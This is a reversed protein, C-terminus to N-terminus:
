IKRIFFESIKWTEASFMSQQHENSDGQCPPELSYGCDINQASSLFIIYIGTFELKVIYFHHKLPDFNYLCTKTIHFSPLDWKGSSGQVRLYPHEQWWQFWHNIGNIEFWVNQDGPTQSLSLWSYYLIDPYREEQVGSLSIKSKVKPYFSKDYLLIIRGATPYFDLVSM